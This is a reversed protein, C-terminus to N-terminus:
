GDIEGEHTENENDIINFKAVEDINTYVYSIECRDINDISLKILNTYDINISLKGENEVVKISVIDDTKNSIVVDRVLLNYIYEKEGNSSDVVHDLSAKNILKLVEGSEIFKAEVLDYIKNDNILVYENSQNKEYYYNDVNYYISEIGNFVKNIIVNDGYSKGYYRSLVEENNKILKVNIDYEYNNNIKELLMNENEDIEDVRDENLVDNITNNAGSAVGGSIISINLYIIVLLLFVGYAAFQVKANYRKDTKMKDIFKMNEQNNDNDTVSKKSKSM